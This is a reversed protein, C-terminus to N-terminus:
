YKDQIVIRGHRVVIFSTIVLNTIENVLRETRVSSITGETVFNIQWFLRLNQNGIGLSGM